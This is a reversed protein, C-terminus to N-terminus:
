SAVGMCARYCGFRGCIYIIWATAYIVNGGSHTSLARWTHAMHVEEITGPVRWYTEQVACSTRTALSVSNPGGVSGALYLDM